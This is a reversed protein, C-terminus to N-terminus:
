CTTIQLVRFRGWPIDTLSPSIPVGALAWADYGRNLTAEARIALSGGTDGVYAGYRQLTRALVKKWRPWPQADVNLAPDLQLRAGEPIAMPDDDTGDTGTAPCAIVGLRVHPLTLFLAHDIHGQAIEEPRIIGGLEAFGSAVAGGCHQRVACLAGWGDTPTIYRSGATWSDRQSDYAAVWTDLESRQDPDIVSLHHDSGTTAAAGSPIRFSVPRDCDYRTCAIRYTQDAANAYTVAIGWQDSNALNADAADQVLGDQVMLTSTSDVTDSPVIPSNWFSSAAYLLPFSGSVSKTRVKAPRRTLLAGRQDVADVVYAYSTSPWLQYDRYIITEGGHVTFREIALNARRIQVAAAGKPVDIRLQVSWASIPQVSVTLETSHQRVALSVGAWVTLGIPLLLLLGLLASRRRVL